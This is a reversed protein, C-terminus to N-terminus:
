MRGLILGIADSTDGDFIAYAASWVIFQALTMKRAKASAEYEAKLEPNAAVKDAIYQVRDALLQKNESSLNQKKSVYEVLKGTNNKRSWRFVMWVIVAVIAVAVAIIIIKKTNM